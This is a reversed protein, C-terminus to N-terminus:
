RRAALLFVEDAPRITRICALGLRYARDGLLRALPALRQEYGFPNIRVHDVVFGADSVLNGLTLANWSFLHHNPDDPVYRRYLSHTEFPVCLILRGGIALLDRMQELCAFPDPVHELTHHCIIMSPTVPVDTLSAIFEIGARECPSRCSESADFGIRRQCRLYQLNFGSGVGYELVVDSPRVHPQFKRVRHRAVVAAVDNSRSHVSEHYKRGASGEYRQRVISRASAM